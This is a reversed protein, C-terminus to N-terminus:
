RAHPTRHAAHIHTPFSSPSTTPANPGGLRVCRSCGCVCVCVGAFLWVCVCLWACVSVLLYDVPFTPSANGRVELGFENKYKFFIEPVYRTPSSPCVRMVEPAVAAELLGAEVMGMAANSAAYCTLDIQGEANGAHARARTHTRAPHLIRLM